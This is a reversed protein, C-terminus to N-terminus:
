SCRCRASRLAALTAPGAVGDAVLGYTRQARIVAASTGPGYIGDIAGNYCSQNALLRQLEITASSSKGPSPSSNGTGSLAVETAPGVIGDVALGRDQQFRRVAFETAGGFVGDITGPKYGANLLSLQLSTVAPGRSGRSLAALTGSTAGLLLLLAIFLIRIGAWFRCRFLSKGAQSAIWAAHPRRSTLSSEYFLAAYQYALVEM